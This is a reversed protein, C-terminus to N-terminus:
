PKKKKKAKAEAARKEKMRKAIYQERLHETIKEDETTVAGHPQAPHNLGHVSTVAAHKGEGIHSISTLPHSREGERSLPTPPPTQGPRIFPLSSLPKM